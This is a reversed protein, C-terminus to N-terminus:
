HDRGRNQKVKHILYFAFGIICAIVFAFMGWALTM